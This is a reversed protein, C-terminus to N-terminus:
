EYIKEATSLIDYPIEVKYKQATKANILMKGKKSQKYVQSPPAGNLIELATEAAMQGNAHESTVISFLAGAEVDSDAAAIVPVKANDVTWRVVEQRPLEKGNKTIRSTDALYIFDYSFTNVAKEWDQFTDCLIMDKYLVGSEKELFPARGELIRKIGEMAASGKSIMGVTKVGLLKNALRWIDGAYSARVIGTVNERPMGLASPAGWIYAFVIPLDDIPAGVFKLADDGVVIILDPKETRAKAIAAEGAKAKAEDTTLYTMDAWQYIPNIGVPKFAANIGDRVLFYGTEAAKNEHVSSVVVVKKGSLDAAFAGNGVLAMT